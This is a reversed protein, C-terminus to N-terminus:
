GGVIDYTRMVNGKKFHFNVALVAFSYSWYIGCNCVGSWGVAGHPLAVCVSVTM